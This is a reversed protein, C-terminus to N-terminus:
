TVNRKISFMLKYDYYIFITLGIVIVLDGLSFLFVNKNGIIDSLYWMKAEKIDQYFKYKETQYNYGANVPMKGENATIVIFNLNSGIFIVIIMINIMILCRERETLRIKSKKM